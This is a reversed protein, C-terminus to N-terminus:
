KCLHRRVVQKWRREGTLVGNGEFGGNRHHFFFYRLTAVLLLIGLISFTTHIMRREYKCAIVIQKMSSHIRFITLKRNEFVQHYRCHFACRWPREVGDNFLVLVVIIVVILGVILYVVFFDCLDAVNAVFGLSVEGPMHFWDVLPWIFLVFSPLKTRFLFRTIRQSLAGHWAAWICTYPKVTMNGIAVAHFATAFLSYVKNFYTTLTFLTDWRKEIRNNKMESISPEHLLQPGCLKHFLM